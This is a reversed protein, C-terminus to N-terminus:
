IVGNELLDQIHLIGVLNQQEMVLLTSIRHNQMKAAAATALENPAITIPQVTMVNKVPTNGLQQHTELVRRLDGDTFVGQIHHTSHGIVVLGLRKQSMEIIANSISVTDPVLPIKEGTHMIDEIKLLLQKGLNGGPHAQAFDERSFGRMELLCIALADGVALMATSSATPALGLPCAEQNVSIDICYNAQEALVSKLNATLLLLPLDLRKLAPLLRTLEETDGSYSLMLIVDGPVLMGIDGHSAEAPHLFFAPSGTSALTAAIKRAIHGSKGIGTVVIRGSCAHLCQCIASINQDTRQKITHIAAAEIDLVERFQQQIKDSSMM